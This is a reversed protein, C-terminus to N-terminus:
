LIASSFFSTVNMTWTGTYVFSVTNLPVIAFYWCKMLVIATFSIHLNSIKFIWFRINFINTYWPTGLNELKLKKQGENGDPRMLEFFKSFTLLKQGKISMKHVQFSFFSLIKAATLTCNKKLNLHNLLHFFCTETM